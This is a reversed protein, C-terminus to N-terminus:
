LTRSSSLRRSLVRFIGTITEVDSTSLSRSLQLLPGNGLLSVDTEEFSLEGTSLNVQEGFPHAGLPQISTDVQILKKYEVDPTVSQAYSGFSLVLLAVAWLCSGQWRARM